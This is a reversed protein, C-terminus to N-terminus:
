ENIKFVILIVKYKLPFNNSIVWYPLHLTCGQVPVSAGYLGYPCYLYLEVREPGVASSIPSPNADRGPRDKGRPTVQYGNFLLNHPHWTRDPCTRIEGGCLNSGPGDLGYGTAIGVVSGSGCFGLVTLSYYSPLLHPRIFLISLFELFYVNCIFIITSILPSKKSTLWVQPM